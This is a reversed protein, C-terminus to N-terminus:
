TGSSTFHAREYNVWFRLTHVEFRTVNFKVYENKVHGFHFIIQTRFNLHNVNLYVACFISQM